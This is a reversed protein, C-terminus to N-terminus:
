EEMKRLAMEEDPSIYLGYKNKVARWKKAYEPWYSKRSPKWENPAQDSKEQNANDETALLNM